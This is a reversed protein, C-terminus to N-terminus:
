KTNVSANIKKNNLSSIDLKQKKVDFFLKDASIFGKPDEVKVNKSIILFNKENNYEAMEAFLKSEEYVAKVNGDFIMNLTKKNYVGKESKISLITDNKFYFFAKVGRMEVIEPTSTDNFAEQSKLIYRNGSLDLGTYQINLFVENNESLDLMQSIIDDQNSSLREELNKKKELFYTFFIITSGIILLMLQFLILKKKRQTM